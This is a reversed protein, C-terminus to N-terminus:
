GSISNKLSNKLCIRNQLNGSTKGRDNIDSDSHPSRKNKIHINTISKKTEVM